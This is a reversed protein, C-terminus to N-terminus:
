VISMDTASEITQLIFLDPRGIRAGPHLETPIHNMASYQERAEPAWM